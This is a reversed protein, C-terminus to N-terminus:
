MMMLSTHSFSLNGKCLYLYNKKSIKLHFIYDKLISTFFDSDLKQVEMDDEEVRIEEEMQEHTPPSM